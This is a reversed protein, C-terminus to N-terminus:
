FSMPEAVAQALGIQDLNFFGILFGTMLLSHMLQNQITELEVIRVYVYLCRMDITHLM